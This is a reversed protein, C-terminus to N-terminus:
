RFTQCDCFVDRRRINNNNYIYIDVGGGLLVEPAVATRITAPWCKMEGSLSSENILM